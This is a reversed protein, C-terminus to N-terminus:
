VWVGCLNLGWSWSFLYCSFFFRGSFSCNVALTSGLGSKRGVNVWILLLVWVTRRAGLGPEVCGGQPSLPATVGSDCPAALPVRVSCALEKRQFMAHPFTYTGAPYLPLPRSLFLPCLCLIAAPVTIDGAPTGRAGCPFGWLCRGRSRPSPIPQRAGNAETVWTPM